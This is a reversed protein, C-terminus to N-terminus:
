LQECVPNSGVTYSTSPTGDEHEPLPSVDDAGAEMAAEFVADEETEEVLIAGCRAFNFMVSGPEAVQALGCNTSHTIIPLATFVSVPTKYACSPAPSLWM